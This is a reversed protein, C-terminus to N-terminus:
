SNSDRLMRPCQGPSVLYSQYPGQYAESLLIEMAYVATITLGLVLVALIFFPIQAMQRIISKWRPYLHKKRGASDVVVKEYHYTPRNQKLSGVGRVNWRISLDDQQIKWYELFITCGLLTIIAYVLSYKPLFAWALIGTVAPFTLFLLYTQMYAFYFAVKAGFLDRIKDFDEKTLFMKQSLHKLLGKNAPGNHIPFISKVNQWKGLGPTIAAGGQEKQWNVLHYVSLVGEAEFTNQLADRQNRKGVQPHESTIGWLWDKVRYDERQTM